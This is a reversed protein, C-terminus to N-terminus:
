QAAEFPTAEFAQLSLIRYDQHNPNLLLGRDRRGTVAIDEVARRAEDPSGARLALHWCTGLVTVTVPVTSLESELKRALANKAFPGSEEVLIEARYISATGLIVGGDSPGSALEKSSAQKLHRAVDSRLGGMLRDPAVGETVEGGPWACRLFYNHKNRNYFTSQTAAFRRLRGAAEEPQSTDFGFGYSDLRRLGLLRGGYGMKDVLTLFATGAVLDVGKLGVLLEVNVKM